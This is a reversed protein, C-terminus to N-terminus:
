RLGRARAARRIAWDVAVLGLCSFVYTLAGASEHLVSATARQTGLSLSALVTFVVRLLNALMALPIVAAVLALRPWLRTQTFHGLFTAVPVLTVISTIGSCAEAVFLAGGPVFIVNGERTVPLAFAHTLGVAQASVLRQLGAIAPTIWPEPLPIMFLLFGIPFALVRLWAGGRLLLVAGAVAAVLALGQVVLEQILLGVAYLLLAGVLLGARRPPSAAPLARLRARRTWALFLAVPPVLFGHAFYEVGSWVSAMSLVAPTFALVLAAAISLEVHTM